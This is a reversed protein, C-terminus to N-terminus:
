HKKLMGTEVTHFFFEESCFHKEPLFNYIFGFITNDYSLIKEKLTDKCEYFDGNFSDYCDKLIDTNYMSLAIMSRLLKIFQKKSIEKEPYNVKRLFRRLLEKDKLSEYICRFFCNGDGKVDNLYLSDAIYVPRKM